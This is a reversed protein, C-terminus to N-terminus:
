ETYIKSFTFGTKGKYKQQVTLGFLIYSDSTLFIASISDSIVWEVIIIRDCPNHTLTFQFQNFASALMSEAEQQVAVAWGLGTRHMGERWQSRWTPGPVPEELFVHPSIHKDM